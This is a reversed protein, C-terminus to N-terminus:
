SCKTPDLLRSGTCYRPWGVVKPAGALEIEAMPTGLGTLKSFYKIQNCNTTYIWYHRSMSSYKKDTATSKCTKSRKLMLVLPIFITKTLFVAEINSCFFITQYIQQVTCLRNRFNPPSFIDIVRTTPFFLIKTKGVINKTKSPALLTKERSISLM